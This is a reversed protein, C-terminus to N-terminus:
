SILVGFLTGIIFSLIGISIYFTKIRYDDIIQSVIDKPVVIEYGDNEEDDFTYDKM